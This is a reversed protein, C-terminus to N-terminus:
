TGNSDGGPYRLYIELHHGVGLPDDVHTVDYVRGDPDVIRDGNSVQTKSGGPVIAIHTSNEIFANDGSGNPLDTGTALDIYGQLTERDAWTTLVGGIGDDATQPTQVKLSYPPYM